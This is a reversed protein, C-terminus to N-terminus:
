QKELTVITVRVRRVIVSLRVDGTKDDHTNVKVCPVHLDM